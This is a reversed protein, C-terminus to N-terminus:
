KSSQTNSLEFTSLPDLTGPLTIFRSFPPHAPLGRRSDLPGVSCRESRGHRIAVTPFPLGVFRLGICVQIGYAYFSLPCVCQLSGSVCVCVCVCVCVNYLGLYVSMCVCVCVCVTFVWVCVCMNYLGLYVCVSYLDLYVCVCQLSGSVCDYVCM